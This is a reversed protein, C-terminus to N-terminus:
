EKKKVAILTFELNFNDYILLDGLDDYFKGSRYKMDYKTRDVSTTGKITCKNNKIEVNVPFILKNTYGKITLGGELTHTYKDNDKLEKIKYVKFVAEPFSRANFFDESRLIRELEKKEEPDEIDLNQISNMDIFVVGGTVLDGSVTVYGNKINIVGRHSGTVQQASWSLLCKGPDVTYKVADQAYLQGTTLYISFITSIFTVISYKLSNM